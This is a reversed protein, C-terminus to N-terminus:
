FPDEELDDWSDEDEEYEGPIFWDPHVISSTVLTDTRLNMCSFLELQSALKDVEQQVREKPWRELSDNFHATDFGVIWMGIESSHVPWNSEIIDLTIETSFTLGGHVDLEPCLDHIQDYNLGHFISGQPIIVYGNGWGYDYMYGSGSESLGRRTFNSEKIFTRM